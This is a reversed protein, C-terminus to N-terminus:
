SEHRPSSEASWPLSLSFTTGRGAVSACEIRGRHEIIIQQTLTLGLGTGLPKTTFFPRFIHSRAEESMGKGTDALQLVVEDAESATRLRLTGGDPMAELANRILNLIAQWLQDPDAQIAPLGPEFETAVAVRASNFLPALFELKAALIDNLTVRERQLKPLRSFQLYDETVRQIRRVESNVAQLLTKAEDTNASGGPGLIGVEDGLLDLNLKITGLPNRIEHALKAAM